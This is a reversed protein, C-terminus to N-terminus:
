LGLKNYGVRMTAETSLSNIAYKLSDIVHDMGNQEPEDLYENTKKDKKWSYNALENATNKCSPHVIIKYGQLRTIGELVTTKKCPLVNCGYDKKLSEIVTKAANDMYIPFRSGITFDKIATAFESLTQETKYFEKFVYIERSAENVLAAVITNPDNYGVDSGQVLKCGRLKTYDFDKVEWNSFITKGLSGFEGLAYIRYFLENTEKLGELAKKTEENVFPNDLYTSRSIICDEEKCGEEFFHKYTWNQKSVPNSMMVIQNKLKGKGRTRHKLESFDDLTIESAEEIMIDHIDPISKVKQFDDLGMFMFMSGNNFHIEMTTKNIKCFSDLKFSSITRKVDEFCSRRCDVATKRVILTKRGPEILAKWIARQFAFFSKGSAGGGLMFILRHEYNTLLPLHKPIFMKRSVKIEM